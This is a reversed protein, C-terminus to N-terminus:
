EELRGRTQLFWQRDAHTFVAPKSVRLTGGRSSSPFDYVESMAGDHYLQLPSASFFPFVFHKGGGASVALYVGGPSTEFHPPEEPRSIRERVNTCEFRECSYRAEFEKWASRSPRTREYDDILRALENDPPSASRGGDLSDDKSVPAKVPSTAARPEAQAAMASLQKGMQAVAQRLTEIETRLQRDDYPPPLEVPVPKRIPEVAPASKQRWFYLGLVSLLALGAMGIALLAFFRVSSLDLEIRDLRAAQQESATPSQVPAQQAGQQEPGVAPANEPQAERTGQQGSAATTSAKNQRHRQRSTAAATTGPRANQQDQQATACHTATFLLFAAAILLSSRIPGRM